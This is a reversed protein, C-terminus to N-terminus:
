QTEKVRTLTVFLAKNIEGLMARLSINYGVDQTCGVTALLGAICGSGNM